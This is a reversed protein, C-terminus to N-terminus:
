SKASLLLSSNLPPDRCDEKNGAGNPDLRVRIQLERLRELPLTEMVPASYANTKRLTTKMIDNGGRVPLSFNIL